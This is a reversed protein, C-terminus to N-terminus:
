LGQEARIHALLGGCGAEVLRYVHDFGGVYYPDPVDEPAGAPAYDLLRSVKSASGGPRDLRRVDALNEGDMVIVYDTTQLDSNTIQRSRGQYRIGRQRLAEQTGPHAPEGVHWSSTGASDVAIEHSLGAEEVLYRFVGEAMPSRCINGLCVFLVRIM